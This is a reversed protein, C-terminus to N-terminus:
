PELWSGAKLCKDVGTIEKEEPTLGLLGSAYCTRQGAKIEISTKNELEENILWYRSAIVGHGQFDDVVYKYAIENLPNWSRDRLLVGEYLPKNYRLIQNFKMFSKISTFSLVTFTLLILTIATLMTRVKRRKMNAVGLSFATGAAAIRGVDTQYVKSGERKLRQMQEEFKSTVISIVVISLALVVFALLIVEPANTLKFAPHVMRMIIYIIIFILAMGAIRKELKPFGFFLREGFYAFPLLLLFYFIIGKIVDNATSKVDPYARSEIAQSQRSYSLFSDWDYNERAQEAKKLLDSSQQQLADLRENKINYRKFNAVRFTDLILMDKAAQFPLDKIIDVQDVSFGLGEAKIKEQTTPVSNLLLVRIGLPGSRGAIKIHTNPKAFVVGVPESYSSWKWQTGTFTELFYSYAEPLSNSLDFVDLRNIPTLYQPDILGILNVAKCRFLVILWKKNLTDLVVNNPYQESGHVGYDPAMELEGTENNLRYAQLLFSTGLPCGLIDAEGKEDTLSLMDGRVGFFSKKYQVTGIAGWRPLVLADKIPENPVFSKTPDFRVVKATLKALKDKMNYSTGSFFEPDNLAYSIMRRILNVQKQLNDIKINAFTDFPTDILKRSDNATIFSISPFGAFVVVEGDTRITEPLFNSWAVGKEPSVGNIISQEINYGLKKCEDTGAGILRKAFPALFRQYNFEYTNHWLAVQDSQSTLDLCFVFKADIPSELKNKLQSANRMHKMVFEAIGQLAQFHGSTALFIVTRAPPNKSFYAALDLLASIGCASEAGYAITPVVSISDYFSQVVFIEKQLEPNTGQITAYINYAPLKKWLVKASVTADVGKIASSIIEEAYKKPLFFRPANLPVMSFNKEAEKRTTEEPEIFIIAKAGLLAVDYWLSDNNFDMLVINGYLMKGSISKLGTKDCYILKGTIGEPPTTCTRVSNPWLAELPIKKNGISLYAYEQIPVVVKFEETRINKIGISRFTEKIYEAAKNCSDTGSM